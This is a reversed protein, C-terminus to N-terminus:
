CFLWRIGGNWFCVFSASFESHELRESLHRLLLSHSVLLLLLHLHDRFLDTLLLLVTLLVKRLGLGGEPSCLLSQVGEVLYPKSM